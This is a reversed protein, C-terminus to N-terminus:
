HQRVVADQAGSLHPFGLSEDSSAFLRIASLISGASGCGEFGQHQLHCPRSRLCARDRRSRSRNCEALVTQRRLHSETELCLLLPGKANLQSKVQDLMPTWLEIWKESSVLRNGEEFARRIGRDIATASPQLFGTCRSQLLTYSVFRDAHIDATPAQTPSTVEPGNQEFVEIGLARAREPTLLLFEQPGAVTFYRIAEIRLGLHTLFSGIEANAVGSERYEGNEERYAAHFGIKSDPSMYRRAGSVWILGCASYCEGDAFVMTAFNRLRIEAGIQLAESVLGGPSQLVM